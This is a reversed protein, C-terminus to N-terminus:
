PVTAQNRGFLEFPLLLFQQPAGLSQGAPVPVNRMRVCSSELVKDGLLRLYRAEM